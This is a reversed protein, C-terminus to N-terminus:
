VVELARGSDVGATTESYFTIMNPLCLQGEDFGQQRSGTIKQDKM